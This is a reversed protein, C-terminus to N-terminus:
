WRAQKRFDLPVREVVTEERGDRAFTYTVELEANYPASGPIPFVAKLVGGKVRVPAAGDVSVSQEGTDQEMRSAQIEGAGVLLRASKPAAFLTPQGPTAVPLVGALVRLEPAWARPDVAEAKLTRGARFEKNAARAVRRFPTTYEVTTGPATYPPLTEKTSGVAIAEALWAPREAAASASGGVCALAIALATAAARGLRDGAARSM